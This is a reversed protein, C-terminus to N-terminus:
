LLSRSALRFKRRYFEDRMLLQLPDGEGLENQIHQSLHTHYYASAASKCLQEIREAEDSDPQPGTLGVRFEMVDMFMDSM